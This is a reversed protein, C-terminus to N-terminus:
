NLKMWDFSFTLENKLKKQSIQNSAASSFPSIRWDGSLVDIRGAAAARIGFAEEFIGTVVPGLGMVLQDESRELTV